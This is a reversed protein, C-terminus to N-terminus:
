RIEKPLDVFKSRGLLSFSCFYIASRHRGTPWREWPAAVWNIGYRRRGLFDIHEEKM